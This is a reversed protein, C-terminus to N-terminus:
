DKVDSNEEYEKLIENLVKDIDIVKVYTEFAFDDFALIYNQLKTKFKEVIEKPQAHLKATLTRCKAAFGEWMELRFARDGNAMELLENTEELEKKLKKIKKTEKAKLKDLEKIAQEQIDEGYAEVGLRSYFQQLLLGEEYKEDTLRECKKKLEAIQKDVLAERIYSNEGVRISYAPAYQSNEDFIEISNM